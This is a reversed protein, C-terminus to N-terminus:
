LTVLLRVTCVTSDFHCLARVGPCLWEYRVLSHVARLCNEFGGILRHVSPDCGNECFWNAPAIRRRYHEPLDAVNPAPRVRRVRRPLLRSLDDWNGGNVLLIFDTAYKRLKPPVKPGVRSIPLGRRYSSGAKRHRPNGIGLRPMQGALGRHCALVMNAMKAISCCLSTVASSVIVLLPRTDTYAAIRARCRCQCSHSLRQTNRAM